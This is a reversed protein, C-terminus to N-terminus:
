LVFLFIMVEQVLLVRPLFIDNCCYFFGGGLQADYVYVPLLKM